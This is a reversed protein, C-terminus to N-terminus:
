KETMLQILEERTMKDIPIRELEEKEANYFVIEPSKGPIKTFSTRLYDTQFEGFIFSKVEPLKNLRWGGCSEIVASHVKRDTVEVDEEAALSLALLAALLFIRLTMNATIPSEGM